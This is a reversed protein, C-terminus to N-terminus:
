YYEPYSMSRIQIGARYNPDVKFDVDLIFDGYSRETCLFGHAKARADAAGVLSDGDAKWITAPDGRQVWGDLNRGNYLNIVRPGAADGQAEQAAANSTAIVFLLLAAGPLIPNPKM